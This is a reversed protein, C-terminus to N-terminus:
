VRKKNQRVYKSLCRHISYNYMSQLKLALNLRSDESFFHSRKHFRTSILFLISIYVVIRNENRGNLYNIAQCIKTNQSCEDM